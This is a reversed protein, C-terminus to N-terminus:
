NNVELAELLSAAHGRQLLLVRVEKIITACGLFCYYLTNIMRKFLKERLEYFKLQDYLNFNWKQFRM